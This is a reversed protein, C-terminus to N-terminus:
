CYGAEFLQFKPCHGMSFINKVPARCRKDNEGNKKHTASRPLLRPGEALLGRVAFGDAPLSGSILCGALLREVNWPQIM